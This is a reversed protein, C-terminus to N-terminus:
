IIEQVRQNSAARAPAPSEAGAQLKRMDSRQDFRGYPDVVRSANLKEHITSFGTSTDGHREIRQDTGARVLQFQYHSPASSMAKARAPCVRTRLVPRRPAPLM